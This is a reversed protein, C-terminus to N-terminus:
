LKEDFAAEDEDCELARATEIFRRSQEPNDQKPKSERPMMGGSLCPSRNSDLPPIFETFSLGQAAPANLSRLTHGSSILWSIGRRNAQARCIFSVWAISGYRWRRSPSRM